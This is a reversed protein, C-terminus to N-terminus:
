HRNAYYYSREMRRLRDEAMRLDDTDHRIVHAPAGKREDELLRRQARGVDSRAIELDDFRSKVRVISGDDASRSDASCGAVLPLPVLAGAVLAWRIHDM